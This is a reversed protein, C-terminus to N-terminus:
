ALLSLISGRLRLSIYSCMLSKKTHRSLFSTAPHQASCTEHPSRASIRESATSGLYALLPMPLARIVAHMSSALFIPTLFTNVRVFSASNKSFCPNLRTFFDSSGIFIHPSHMWQLFYGLQSSSARVNVGFYVMRFACVLLFVLVSLFVGELRM